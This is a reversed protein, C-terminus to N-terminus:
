FSRFKGKGKEQSIKRIKKVEYKGNKSIYDVFYATPVKSVKDV